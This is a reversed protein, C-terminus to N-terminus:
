GLWWGEGLLSNDELRLVIMALDECRGRLGEKVMREVWLHAQLYHRPVVIESLLLVIAEEDPTGRM